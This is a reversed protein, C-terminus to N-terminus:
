YNAACHQLGVTLLVFLPILPSSIQLSSPKFALFFNQRILLLLCCSVAQGKRGSRNLFFFAERKDKKEQQQSKPHNSIGLGARVRNIQSISVRLDFRERLETQVTSSPTQPAQRCREELFARAEGRLKSPHGHRGDSLATEGRQRVAKMLRYANSQSILLGATTAATLWPQGQQMCAVLHVKAAQYQEKDM